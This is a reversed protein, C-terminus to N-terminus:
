KVILDDRRNKAYADEDRGPYKPRQSGYTATRIRKKPVGMEVLYTKAAEARHQGLALNYEITGLADCNGEIAIKANDDKEKLDTAVKALTDRADERLVASDFDFYIAGPGDDAATAAPTEPPLPEQKEAKNQRPAPKAEETDSAVKPPRSQEHSCGIALALGFLWGLNRSWRSTM